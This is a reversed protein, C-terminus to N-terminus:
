SVITLSPNILLYDFVRGGTILRFQKFENCIFLLSSHSFMGLNHALYKLFRYLIEIHSDYLEKGADHLM